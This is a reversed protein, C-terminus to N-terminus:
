GLSMAAQAGSTLPVLREEVEAMSARSVGRM